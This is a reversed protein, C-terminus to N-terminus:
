VTSGVATKARERGSDGLVLDHVVKSHEALMELLQAVAHPTAPHELHELRRDVTTVREVTFSSVQDRCRVLAFRTAFAFAWSTAFSFRAPPFASASIACSSAEAVFDRLEFV